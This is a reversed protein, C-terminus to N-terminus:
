IESEEYWSIEFEYGEDLIKKWPLAKEGDHEIHDQILMLINDQVGQISSAITTPTFFGIEENVWGGIDNGAAKELLLKITHM